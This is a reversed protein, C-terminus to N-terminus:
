ACLILEEAVSSAYFIHSILSIQLCEYAPQQDRAATTGDPGRTRLVDLGLALSRASVLIKSGEERRGRDIHARQGRDQSGASEPGASERTSDLM